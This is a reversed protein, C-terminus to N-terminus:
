TAKTSLFQAARAIKCAIKEAWHEGTNEKPFKFLWDSGDPKRFWFKEKSGMEEPKTEWQPDVEEIPYEAAM